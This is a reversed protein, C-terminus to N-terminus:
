PRGSRHLNVSSSALHEAIDLKDVLSALIDYSPVDVVNELRAEIKGNKAPAAPAPGRFGHAAELRALGPDDALV